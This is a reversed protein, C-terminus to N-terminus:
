SLTLYSLLMTTIAHLLSPCFLSNHPKAINPSPNSFYYGYTEFLTLHHFLSSSNYLSATQETIPSYSPPSQDSKSLITSTAHIVFRSISFHPLLLFSIRSMLLDHISISGVRSCFTRYPM